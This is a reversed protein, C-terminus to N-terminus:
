PHAEPKNLWGFPTYADLWGRIWTGGKLVYIDAMKFDRQQPREPPFAGYDYPKFLEVDGSLYVVYGGDKHRQTIGDDNGWRGDHWVYNYAYASEEVFLPMGPLDSIYQRAQDADPLTRPGRTPASSSKDRDIFGIRFPVDVRAGSAAENMTYDFDFDADDKDWLPPWDATNMRGTPDRRKNVPCETIEHLNEVYEYMDGIDPPTGSGHDIRGWRAIDWVHGNHEYAYSHTAAGIQKLNIHCKLTRASDRAAGLAPLLIGILLAIIAIVVLLEILTFGGEVERCVHRHESM